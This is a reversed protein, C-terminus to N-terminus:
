GRLGKAPGSEDRLETRVTSTVVDQAREHFPQNSGNAINRLLRYAADADIGEREMVIGEAQAITRRRELATRIRASQQEDTVHVGADRLILSAETAFVGALEQDKPGFASATRSYINLAGLPREEVLLPSSLISNIGLEMALPTFTPWRSEHELAEAHFWL